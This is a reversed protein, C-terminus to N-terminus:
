QLIEKGYLLIEKPLEQQWPLDLRSYKFNSNM